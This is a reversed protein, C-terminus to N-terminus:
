RSRRTWLMLTGCQAGAGVFEPPTTAPGAYFEVAELTAADYQDLNPVAFRNVADPAYIRVGDVIVQAFCARPSRSDNPDALPLLSITGMGRGTAVLLAGTRAYRILKAGKAERRLLEGVSTGRLSDLEDRLFVTGQATARRRLIDGLQRDVAANVQLPDLVVPANRTLEIDAELRHDAELRVRVRLPDFGLRHVVLHYDGTPLGSLFFAGKADSTTSRDLEVLTVTAGDLRERTGEALVSGAFSALGASVSGSQAAAPVGLDLLAMVFYALSSRPM